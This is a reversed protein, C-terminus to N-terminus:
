KNQAIFVCHNGYLQKGDLTFQKTRKCIKNGQADKRVLVDIILNTVDVGQEAAGLRV